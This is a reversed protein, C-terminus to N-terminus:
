ENESELNTLNSKSTDNKFFLWYNVFMCGKLCNQFVRNQFFWSKETVMLSQVIKIIFM